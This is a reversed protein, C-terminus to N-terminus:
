QELSFSYNLRVASFEILSANSIKRKVGRRQRCCRSRAAFLIVGSLCGARIQDVCARASIEVGDVFGQVFLLDQSFNLDGGDLAFDSVGGGDAGRAEARARRIM